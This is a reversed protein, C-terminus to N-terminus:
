KRPRLLERATPVFNEAPHSDCGMTVATSKRRADFSMMETIMDRNMTARKSTGHNPRCKAAGSCAVLSSSSTATFATKKETRSVRGSNHRKCKRGDLIPRLLKHHTTIPSKACTDHTICAASACLTCVLCDVLPLTPTEAVHAVVGSDHLVLSVRVFCATAVSKSEASAAPQTRSM